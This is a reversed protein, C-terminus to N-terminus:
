NDGSCDGLGPAPSEDTEVPEGQFRAPHRAARMSGLLSHQTYWYTTNHHVQPDALHESFDCVASAPVDAKEFDAEWESTSRTAVVAEMRGYFMRTMATGDNTRRLDDIWEPHGAVRVASELQAGTVPAVVLWGDTTRLPRVASIQEIVRRDPRELTAYAALVDPGCFYAMSDLMSVDVVSGGSTERQVLGALAAQVALMATIKDALYGLVFRPRDEETEGILGSRAQTITDFAPRDAMPGDQGFGSIRIWVLQPFQRRVRHEDIGLRAAVSPRWNTVLVDADVLMDYFAALQDEDKLDLVISKKNHNLNVFSRSIGKTRVGFRRMPDGTPPEIKFVEAGLDALALAAFPGTVFSAAEIVRVGQLPRM